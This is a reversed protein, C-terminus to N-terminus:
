LHFNEPSLLVEPKTSSEENKFYDVLAGVKVTVLERCSICPASKDQTENDCIHVLIRSNCSIDTASECFRRDSHVFSIESIFTDKAGKKIPLVRLIEPDLNPHLLEKVEDFKKQVDATFEELTYKKQKPGEIDM